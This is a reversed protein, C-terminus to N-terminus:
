VVSSVSMAGVDNINMKGRANEQLVQLLISANASMLQRRTATQSNNQRCSARLENEWRCRLREKDWVM